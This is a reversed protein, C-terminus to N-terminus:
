DDLKWWNKREEDFPDFVSGDRIDDILERLSDSPTAGCMMIATGLLDFGVILLMKAAPYAQQLMAEVEEKPGELCLDMFGEIPSKEYWSKIGRVKALERVLLTALRFCDVIRYVKGNTHNEEVM